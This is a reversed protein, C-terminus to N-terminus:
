RLGSIKSESRRGYTLVTDANGLDSVRSHRYRLVDCFM